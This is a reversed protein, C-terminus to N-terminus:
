FTRSALFWFLSCPSAGEPLPYLRALSDGGQDDADDRQPTGDANEPFGDSLDPHPLPGRAMHRILARPLVGSHWKLAYFAQPLPALTM